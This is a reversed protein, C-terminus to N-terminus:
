SRTSSTRGLLARTREPTEHVFFQHPTPDTGFWLMSFQGFGKPEIRIEGDLPLVVETGPAGDGAWRLEHPTCSLVGLERRESSMIRARRAAQDGSRRARRAMRWRPLLMAVLLLGLTVVVTVVAGVVGIQGILIIVSSCAVLGAGIPSQPRGATADAGAGPGDGSAM